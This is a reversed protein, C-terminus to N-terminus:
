RGHRGDRRGGAVVAAPEGQPVPVPLWRRRLANAVEAGVSSTGTGSHRNTGRADPVDRDDISRVPEVGRVSNTLFVEDAALLDALSLREERVHIGAAHGAELARRRAIGPLIRGDAPPTALWDPGACFVNGRSVELVEGDEDLLLPVEDGGPDGADFVSRDAWKHAGLGGPVVVSRLAVGQAAPPFLQEAEIEDTSVSAEMRNGTRPVVTLRLRGRPVDRAGGAIAERADAPLAAGFVAAVSTALREVHLDIEVPEGDLVLLTEFLGRSPDAHPSRM